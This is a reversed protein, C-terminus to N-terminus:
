RVLDCHFLRVIAFTGGRPEGRVRVKKGALQPDRVSAVVYVLDGVELPPAILPVMVRYTGDERDAMVAGPGTWLTSEDSVPPVLTGTTLDLTDDGYGPRDRALMLTDSLLSEVRKRATELNLV